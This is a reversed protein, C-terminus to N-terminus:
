TLMLQHFLHRQEIQDLSAPGIFAMTRELKARLLSLVARAPNPLLSREAGCRCDEVDLFV